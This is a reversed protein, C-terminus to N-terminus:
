QRLLSYATRMENISIQGPATEGGQELAAFTFVAGFVPSLLRSIRGQEGMCFCVLRNKSANESVFDLV